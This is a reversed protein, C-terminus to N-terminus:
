NPIRTPARCSRGYCDKLREYEAEMAAIISAYEPDTAQNRVEYPNNLLDYFEVTRSADEYQVWVYRASRVGHFLPLTDGNPGTQPGSSLLVSRKRMSHGTLLPRLSMGDPVRGTPRVRAFELLTPAVDIGSVLQGVRAGKRIGPGSMMFPVRLAPEYPFYKGMSIRQEGLLYGNDGMLVIITNDYQRTKRLERVMRLIAEDVSLLSQRRRRNDYAVEDIEESSLLPLNKVFDNKDSVDALNFSPDMALPMNPFANKHRKAPRPPITTIGTDPDPFDVDMWRQPTPRGLIPKTEVHPALFAVQMFFPGPIQAQEKIEKVAKARFVDTSYNRPREVYFSGYKHSGGPENVRYGYMQYTSPDATMQFDTWGLPPAPRPKNPFAYGNIYKGLHVTQYGANRLWAGIFKKGNNATWPVYGGAPPFNANVGNNHGYSGTMDVARSPCCIAFPTIFQDFTVGHRGMFAKVYPMYQVDAVTQDDTQIVLINPKAKLGSDGAQAPTTPAMAVAVLTFAAISSFIRSTKGTLRM